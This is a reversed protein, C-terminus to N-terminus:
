VCLLNLSGNTLRYIFGLKALLGIFHFKVFLQLLYFWLAPVPTGAREYKGEDTGNTTRIRNYLLAVFFGPPILETPAYRSASHRNTDGNRSNQRQTCACM